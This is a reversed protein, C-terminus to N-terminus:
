AKIKAQEGNYEVVVVKTGTAKEFPEVYAKKQAAGNAGGFNVVTLQSQALAPLALLAAVAAAVLSRKKM